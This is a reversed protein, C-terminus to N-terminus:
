LIYKESLRALTEAVKPYLKVYGRSIKRYEYILDSIKEESLKFKLDEEFVESVLALLNHHRVTKDKDSYFNVKRKELLNVFDDAGIKIGHNKTLLSAFQEWGQKKNPEQNEKDLQTDLLTQYCDIFIVRRNNNM